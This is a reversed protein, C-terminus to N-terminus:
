QHSGAIEASDVVAMRAHVVASAAGDVVTTAVLDAGRFWRIMDHPDLPPGCAQIQAMEVNVSAHHQLQEHCEDRMM